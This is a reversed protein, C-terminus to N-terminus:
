LSGGIARALAGALMAGELGLNIVGSREVVTEGIAAILLPSSIRVAAAGFSGVLALAAPDSFIM